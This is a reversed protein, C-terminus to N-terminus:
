TGLRDAQDASFLTLRKSGIVQSLFGTLPDGHLNSTPVDTPVAGLWLQPPIFDEPSFFSPGFDKRMAAPLSAGETYPKVYGETM